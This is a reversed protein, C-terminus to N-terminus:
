CRLGKVKVMVMAVEKVMVMVSLMAVGNVIVM